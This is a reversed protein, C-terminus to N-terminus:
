DDRCGWVISKRAHYQHHLQGLHLSVSPTTRSSSTRVPGSRLHPAARARSVQATGAGFFRQFDGNGPAQGLPKQGAHSPGSLEAGSIYRGQGCPNGDSKQFQKAESKWSRNGRRRRHQNHAMPQSSHIRFLRPISEGQLKPRTDAQVPGSYIARVAVLETDEGWFRNM